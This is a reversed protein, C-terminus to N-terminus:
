GCIKQVCEISVQSDDARLHRMGQFYPLFIIIVSSPLETFREEASIWGEGQCIHYYRLNKGKLIIMLESM